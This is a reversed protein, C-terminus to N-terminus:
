EKGLLEQMARMLVQEVEPAVRSVRGTEYGGQTYAIATGIYGPGYDGYAAMMVPSKSRMKQAALQYEVFLEGPMHLVYAPGIRLCSLDIKEGTECRRAWVLNRAAKMREADSLKKDAVRAELDKVNYLRSLPLAVPVVRWSVDASKIPVMQASAFAEKMGAALRSALIARNAPSG